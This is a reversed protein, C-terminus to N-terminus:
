TALNKKRKLYWKFNECVFSLDQSGVRMFTHFRVINVNSTSSSRVSAVDFNQNYAICNFNCRKNKTYRKTINLIARHNCSCYLIKINDIKHIYFVIKRKKSDRDRIIFMKLSFFIGGQILRM